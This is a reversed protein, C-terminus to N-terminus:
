RDQRRRHPSRRRRTPARRSGRAPTGAGAAIAVDADGPDTLGCFKIKTAHPDV